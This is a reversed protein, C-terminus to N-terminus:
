FFDLAMGRTKQYIPNKLAENIKKLMTIAATEIKIPVKINQLKSFCKNKM